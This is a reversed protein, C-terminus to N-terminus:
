TLKSNFRNLSKMADLFAKQEDNQQIIAKILYSLAVRIHHSNDLCEQESLRHIGASLTDYIIALPNM